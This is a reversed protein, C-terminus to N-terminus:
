NREIASQTPPQASLSRTKLLVGASYIVYYAALVGFIGLTLPSHQYIAAWNPSGATGPSAPFGSYGPYAAHGAQMGQGLYYMVVIRYLVRGIFLASVILGIYTHPTYFRGQPTIEFQTHRLGVVSLAAGIALGAALAGLAELNRYTIFAAFGSFLLFLVIRFVMRGEQVSQRGINRRMRRYVGWIVLAAMLLPTILKPDV